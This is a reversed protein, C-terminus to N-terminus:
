PDNRLWYASHHQDCLRDIRAHEAPTTAPDAHRINAADVLSATAASRDVAGLFGDLLPGRLRSFPTLPNVEIPEFCALILWTLALDLVRQAFRYNTWDLLVPGRESMVVNGPHLDGHVLRLDSRAAPQVHDLSRHLAALERGYTEARHPHDVLDSLMTRGPVLEMRIEPGVASHVVPVPVGAAAALRMAAAEPEASHRSNIYRRLVTGDGLDYIVSARGQGIVPGPDDSM